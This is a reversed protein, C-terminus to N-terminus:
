TLPAEHAGSLEDCLRYIKITEDAISSWNFARDLTEVPIPEADDRLRDGLADVDGVPFYHTDGLGLDKNPQIDSLLLPAGMAWAELAAIPLGEHHSALIFLKANALLHAVQAQPKGGALIVGPHALDELEKDHDSNSHGGVIVLPAGAGSQKHARILDAFGKEPVLRGVSVMYGRETLGLARLTSPGDAALARAIIHDAGNPVYHIRDAKDPYDARLREALSRSVAITRAASAVGIREGLQLISRAFRNWKARRFDDGHHTLIVPMGLLRALPALLGPGIAHIHVCDARAQFRARVIAVFTNSITEFYKSRMAFAPIVEIGTSTKYRTKGIYPKRGYVVVDVDRHQRTMKDFLNECHTEIGGSVDPIGRLGIVCVKMFFEKGVSICWGSL